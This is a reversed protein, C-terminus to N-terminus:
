KTDYWSNGDKIEAKLPVDLRCAGLMADLLLIKVADKEEAPCDIILEDHVQLVLKAKFNGEKLARSINVMAIKIIDAATGQIPANMAVREWFSRINFNSSNIENLYRIRGFMSRVYGNKRADEIANDLYSKVGSYTEFYEDIYKQAENRTIGLDVSLSYASIGYIVSFNITKASNRMSPTIKGLDDENFIYQATKSHIDEDNLYVAKMAEDKSLHALVRLEIQSYDADILVNGKGAVFAKRFERGQELKVPINQLNPDQSSIRGTAAVKQNFTSYIRSDPAIQLLLGASYTGRLKEYQRYNLIYEIIEHRGRLMELVDVNTSYGTKTKRLAPLKLKEFLIEGLQKPSNLNFDSGAIEKIRDSLVHLVEELKKDLDLLVKRDVSIGNYEMEALVASTPIEINRYLDSLGSKDMEDELKAKLEKMVETYLCHQDRDIGSRADFMSIQTENIDQGCVLEKNFYKYYLSSVSDYKKDPDLIYAAIFIDFIVCKIEMGKSLAFNYLVKSDYTVIEKINKSGILLSIMDTDALYCVKIDSIMFSVSGLKYTGKDKEWDFYIYVVKSEATMDMYRELEGADNITIMGRERSKGENKKKLGFKESMTKFELRDFLGSLRDDDIDNKKLDQLSVDLELDTKIRSLERSLYCIDKGSRLLQKTKEPTVSEINSYINDITGYERILRLAGKEGIGRIGPINDSSDGMIAKLDVMQGPSIGYREFFKGTDYEVTTTLGSGSSPYDIKINGDILQFADKDGTLVTVPLGQDSAIRAFTGIIDDAEAGAKEIRKIGMADLVEKIVPMQVALEAPMGSRTAKYAGYMEHRFTPEKRDFAVAIYGYKGDKLYKNLINLFGYIANTYLGSVTKLMNSGSLGYYSRNMISNGDIILLGQM